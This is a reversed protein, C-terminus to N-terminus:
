KSDGAPNEKGFLLYKLWKCFNDAKAQNGFSAVKTAENGAVLWLGPNKGFGDVQEVAIKVEGREFTM